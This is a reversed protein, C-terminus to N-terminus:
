ACSINWNETKIYKCANRSNQKQKTMVPCHTYVLTCWLFRKQGAARKNSWLWMGTEGPQQHRLRASSEPIWRNYVLPDPEETIAARRNPGTARRWWVARQCDAPRPWQEAPRSPAYRASLLMFAPNVKRSASLQVFHFYDANGSRQGSLFYQKLIFSLEVNTIHAFFIRSGWQQYSELCLNLITNLIVSTSISSCIKNGLSHPTIFAILWQSKMKM